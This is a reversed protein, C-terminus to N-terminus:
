LIVDFYSFGSDNNSVDTQSLQSNKTSTLYEVTYFSHSLLYEKLAQKFMKIDLNSSKTAHPLNNFSKIGTNLLVQNNQFELFWFFPEKSNSLAEM